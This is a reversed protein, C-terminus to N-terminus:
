SRATRQSGERSARADIEGAARRSHRSRRGRAHWKLNQNDCARLLSKSQQSELEIMERSKMIIFSCCAGASEQQEGITAPAARRSVITRRLNWALLLLLLMPANVNPPKTQGGFASNFRSSVLSIFSRFSRVSNFHLSGLQQTNFFRSARLSLLLLLLKQQRQRQQREVAAPKEEAESSAMMLSLEM